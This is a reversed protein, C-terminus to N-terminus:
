GKGNFKEAAEIDKLYVRIKNELLLATDMRGEIYGDQINPLVMRMRLLEGMMWELTKKDM